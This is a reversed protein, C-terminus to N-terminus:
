KKQEALQVDVLKIKYLEVGIWEGDNNSYCTAIYQYPEDTHGSPPYIGYNIYTSDIVKYTRDEGNDTSIVIMDGKNITIYGTRWLRHIWITNQYFAAGLINSPLMLSGDSANVGNFLQYTGGGITIAGLNDGPYVRTQNDNAVAPHPPFPTSTATVLGPTPTQTPINTVTPLPTPTYTLTPTPSGPDETPTASPINTATNTPQISTSTSTPTRTPTVPTFTPTANPLLCYCLEIHYDQGGAGVYEVYVDAGFTVPEYSDAFWVGDGQRAMSYPTGNVFIDASDIGGDPSMNWRAGYSCPLIKDENGDWQIVGDAHATSVTIATLIVVLLIIVIPFNLRYISKNMSKSWFVQM